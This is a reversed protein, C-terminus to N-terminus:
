SYESGALVAKVAEVPMNPAAPNAGFTRTVGDMGQYSGLHNGRSDYAALALRQQGTPVPQRVVTRATTPALTFETDGVPM